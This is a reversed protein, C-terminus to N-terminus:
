FRTSDRGCPTRDGEAGPQHLSVALGEETLGVWAGELEVEATDGQGADGTAM